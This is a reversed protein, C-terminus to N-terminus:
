TLKGTDGLSSRNFNRFDFHAYNVSRHAKGIGLALGERLTPQPRPDDMINRTVPGVYSGDPNFVPKGSFSM